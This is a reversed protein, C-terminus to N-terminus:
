GIIGAWYSATYKSEQLLDAASSNYTRIASILHNGKAKFKRLELELAITKGLQNFAKNNGCFNLVNSANRLEILDCLFTDYNGRNEDTIKLEGDMQRFCATTEIYKVYEEDSYLFKLFDTVASVLEPKNAINANVVISTFAADNLVTPEGKGETVTENVSTPLPMWRVDRKKDGGSAIYDDMNGADNSENWWYSSEVLMGKAKNKGGLTGYIFMKQAGTHSVGVDRSDDSFYGEKEIAEVFAATYYKSALSHTLYGNELTIKVWETQPKKIYNIGAFLPEETYLFNGNKDQSVIEVLGDDATGKVGDPGACESSDFSYIVKAEDYGALSPWLGALLYNIANPYKGSLEFPEINLSVMKECLILMQQLSCPLGDDQTGYVGDSGCSKKEELSTVFYGTGYKTEFANIDNQSDSFYLPNVGNNAKDNFLDRDYTLGSYFEYHPLGYFGEGRQYRTLAFDDMRDILRSDEDNYVASVDYLSGEALLGRLDDRELVVMHYGSGPSILNQTGQAKFIKVDVGKKGSAYSKEANKSEFRKEANEVWANGVGGDFNLFTIVTKSGSNKKCGVLTGFMGVSMIASLGLVALKQFKKKM